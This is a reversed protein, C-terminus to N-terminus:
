QTDSDMENTLRSAGRAGVPERPISDCPCLGGGPQMELVKDFRKVLAANHTAMLIAAGHRQQIDGFVEMVRLGTDVDLNGTPEDALILSPRSVLARAIAVRQREGGSLQSPFHHSRAKIG